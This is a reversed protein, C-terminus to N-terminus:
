PDTCHHAMTATNRGETRRCRLSASKESLHRLYTREEMQGTKIKSRRYSGERVGLSCHCNRWEVLRRGIWTTLRPSSIEDTTYVAYVQHPLVGTETM